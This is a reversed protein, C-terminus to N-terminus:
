EKGSSGTNAYSELTDGAPTMQFAETSVKRSGGGGKSGKQAAASGQAEQTAKAAWVAASAQRSVPSLTPAAAVGFLSALQVRAQYALPTDREQIRDLVKRRVEAFVGPYVTRIAEISEPSLKGQRLDGLVGAPDDVARAYRLFKAMQTASPRVSLSPRLPDSPPSAPLKQALFAVARQTTQAVGVAMAPAHHAFDGLQEGVKQALEPHGAAAKVQDAHRDFDEGLASPEAEGAGLPVHGLLPEREDDRAATLYGNVARDVVRDFSSLEGAVAGMTAVRNLAWAAVQPGRLRFGRNALGALLGSPHGAAAAAVGGSQMITDTLGFARNSGEALVRNSLGKEIYALKQYSAKLKGYEQAWGPRDLAGEAADLKTTIYDKLERHVARMEELPLKAADPVATQQRYLQNGLAQTERHLDRFSVVKDQADPVLEGADDVIGFQRGLRDRFAQLQEAVYGQSASGEYPAAIEDIKRYLDLPRANFAPDSGAVAFGAADELKQGIAKGVEERAAQTRDLMTQPDAGPSLIGRELAEEGLRVAARKGMYAEAQRLIPKSLGLARAGVTAAAKRLAPASAARAESLVQGGGGLIGGTVFGTMAGYGVAAALKEGTLPTDALQAQGVAQGLSIAANEASGRAGLAISRQAIRGLASGAGTGALDVGAAEGMAGLEGMIPNALTGVMGGAAAALPHLEEAARIAEHNARTDGAGLAATISGLDLTGLSVATLGQNAMALGLGASGQYRGRLDEQHLEDPSIVRGGDALVGALDAGAVTGARGDALRVAVKAPLPPPAGQQPAPAPPVPALPDM